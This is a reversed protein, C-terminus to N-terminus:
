KEFHYEITSWFPLKHHEKTTCTSLVKNISTYVRFVNLLKRCKFIGFYNETENEGNIEVAYSGVAIYIDEKNHKSSIYVAKHQYIKLQNDWNLIIGCQFYKKKHVSM